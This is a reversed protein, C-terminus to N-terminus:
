YSAKFPKGSSIATLGRAEYAALGAIGGSVAGAAVGLGLGGLVGGFAIEGLGFTAGAIFGVIIGALAAKGCESSTWGGTAWVCAGYGILGGVLAGIAGLILPAIKGSRDTLRMPNNAVYTYRNLTQPDGPRGLVPDPSV